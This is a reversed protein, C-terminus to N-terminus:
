TNGTQLSQQAGALDAEIQDILAQVEALPQRKKLADRLRGFAPELKQNWEPAAPIIVCELLEYHDLYASVAAEYAADFDGAKYKALADGLAQRVGAFHAAQEDGAPAGSGTIERLEGAAKEIQERILAPDLPAAPPAQPLWAALQTLTHALVRAAGADQAAIVAQHADFERQAVVTFAYAEYYPELDRWGGEGAAEAYEEEVKGLLSALVGGSLEAGAREEAPLAKAAIGDLARTMETVDREYAAVSGSAKALRDAVGALLTQLPEVQAPATERLEGALGPWDEAWPHAAHERAAALDGAKVAALAALLQGDMRAFGAALAVHGSDLEATGDGQAIATLGVASVVIAGLTAPLWVRRMAMGWRM